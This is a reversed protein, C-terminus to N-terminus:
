KQRLYYEKLRDHIAPHQALIETLRERCRMTEKKAADANRLHFTDAIETPSHSLAWDRLMQHCREAKIQEICWQLLQADEEDILRLETDLIEGDEPSQPADDLAILRNQKKLRNSWMQWTITVIYTHVTATHLELGERAKEYFRALADQWCDHADDANGGHRLVQSKAKRELDPDAYLQHLAQDRQEPNGARLYRILEEDKLKPM